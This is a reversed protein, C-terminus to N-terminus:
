LVSFLKELAKHPSFPSKEWDASFPTTNKKGIFGSIKLTIYHVLFCLFILEIRVGQCEETLLPGYIRARLHVVTFTVIFLECIVYRSHYDLNSDILLKSIIPQSLTIDKM